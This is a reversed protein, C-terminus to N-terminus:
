FYACIVEENNQTETPKGEAIVKGNNLGVVGSIFLKSANRCM